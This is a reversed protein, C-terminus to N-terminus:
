TIAHHVSSPEKRQRGASEGRRESGLRLVDPRIPDPHEGDTIWRLQTLLQAVEPVDLSPVQHELNPVRPCASGRRPRPM